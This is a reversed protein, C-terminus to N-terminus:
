QYKLLGHTVLSGMSRKCRVIPRPYASAERLSYVNERREPLLYNLKNDSKSMCRFTKRCIQVRREELPVLGCRSLAQQYTLDPFIIKLSRRQISELDNNDDKTLGNHWVACGYELISRIVSMYYKVLDNNSLGARKLHILFHLRINCKKTVEAVHKTWRLNDM